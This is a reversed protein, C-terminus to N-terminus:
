DGSGKSLKSDIVIVWRESHRYLSNANFLWKHMAGSCVARGRGFSAGNSSAGCLTMYLDQSKPNTILSPYLTFGRSIQITFFFTLSMNGAWLRWWCLMTVHHTNKDPGPSFMSRGKFCGKRVAQALPFFYYFAYICSLM